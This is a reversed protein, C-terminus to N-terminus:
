DSLLKALKTVPRTYMGNQTKVDCSHVLGDRSPKVSSIRGIPWYARGTSSDQVVVTDGVALNPMEDQQKQREQLSLMYEAHFKKWVQDTIYNVRKWRSRYLDGDASLTTDTEVTRIGMLHNPTIAVVNPDASSTVTLPRSNMKWQVKVMVTHLEKETLTQTNVLGYLIKRISRIQREYHGGMQSAQPPNFVWEIEDRALKDRVVLEQNMKQRMEKCGGVLNTGNDSRFVKPRGRRNIFRSITMLCSQTDLRRAIEIHVARTYNCSFVVGYRKEQRRGVAINLPGVYDVGINEFARQASVRDPPLPEMKQSELRARYKRCLVCSGLVTRVATTMGTICYEERLTAILHNRGVHGEMCHIRRILKQVLLESGLLIIPHRCEHPLSEYTLRGGVRLTNDADLEPCLKQIPSSKMMSLGNKLREIEHPYYLRQISRIVAFRAQRKADAPSKAHVARLVVQTFRLVGEWESIVNLLNIM